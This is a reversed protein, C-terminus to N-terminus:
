RTRLEIWTARALGLLRGDEGFVASGAFTKRGEQAIRWGTAVCHEGVAPTAVVEATFRGLVAPAGVEYEGEVYAAGIGGACDLVAWVIEPAIRTAEGGASAPAQAQSPSGSVAITGDVTPLSADPVWPAAALGRGPVPGVFVRQGDGVERGPGCTFCTPFPHETLERVIWSRETAADADAFDVPAPAEVGVDDVARAEAVLDDGLYVTVEDAGPEVRMPTDLPPPMRLTVEVPSSATDVFAAVVGCAYGGNASDPPGCFRRPITLTQSV